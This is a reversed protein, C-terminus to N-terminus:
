CYAMGGPRRSSRSIDYPLLACSREIGCGNWSTMPTGSIGRWNMLNPTRKCTSSGSRPRRYARRRGPRWTEAVVHALGHQREFDFVAAQRDKEFWSKNRFEIALPMGPLHRQCTLIHELSSERYVLWPPFQFLVM